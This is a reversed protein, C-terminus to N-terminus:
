PLPASPGPALREGLLPAISEVRLFDGALALARPHSNTCAVQSLLGCQRLRELADGPFVGHTCLAIVDVAGADRYAQAAGLLSSGTRIMDDYIVVRKHAVHASVGAVQTRAGDLRRKYAFAADVGLDNALSSVWKARGADTCALVFDDGGLERALRAIIPKGYLHLPHTEHEFYHTIGSVHLDFLFVRNGMAATPISSLLRARIKAKVVEGPRVAREMTAYGFYPIVLSLRRAGYYVLACALDYLELTDLDSITGGLLVVDRDDCPTLIRQYREGDPFHKHEIQGPEFAQHACLEDYLYRYAHTAYLLPM